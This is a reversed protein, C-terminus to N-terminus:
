EEMPFAETNGTPRTVARIMKRQWGRLMFMPVKADFKLALTPTGPLKRSSGRKSERLFRAPLLWLNGVGLADVPVPVRGLSNYIRRWSRDIQGVMVGFLRLPPHPM